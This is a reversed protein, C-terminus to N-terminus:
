KVPHYRGRYLQELTAPRGAQRLRVLETLATISDTGTTAAPPLAARAAAEPVTASPDAVLAALTHIYDGLFREVYDAAFLTADFEACVVFGSPTEDVWVTFEFRTRDIDLPQDVVDCGALSLQGM